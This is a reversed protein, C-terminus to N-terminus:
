SWWPWGSTAPAPRAPRARKRPRALSARPDPPDAPELELVVAYLRGVCGTPPDIVPMTPQVYRPHDDPVVGADVIGDEVPKLTAALNLPDRIRRDRPAYHLEVAIRGLPPIRAARALLCADARLQRVKRHKTTWHGRDNMSLPRTLPLTLTWTRVTPTHRETAPPSEHHAAEAAHEDAEDLARGTM